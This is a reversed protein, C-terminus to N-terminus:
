KGLLEKIQNEFAFPAVKKGWHGVPMGRRDLLFKNFNGKLGGSMRSSPIAKKLATYVPHENAGNVDIKAFMPFNVGYKSQAFEKIQANPWPEQKGFQNCPFGLVVFGEAGYRKQLTV